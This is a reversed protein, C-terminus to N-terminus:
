PGKHGAQTQFRMKGTLQHEAIIGKPDTLEDLGVVDKITQVAEVDAVTFISVAGAGVHRFKGGAKGDREVTADIDVERRSTNFAAQRKRGVDIEVIGVVISLDTEFLHKM